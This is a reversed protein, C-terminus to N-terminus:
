IGVSLRPRWCKQELWDAVLTVRRVLDPEYLQASDFHFHM